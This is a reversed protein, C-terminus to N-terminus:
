SLALRVTDTMELDDPVGATMLDVLLAQRASIEALLHFVARGSPAASSGGHPATSLVTRTQATKNRKTPVSSLPHRAADELLARERPALDLAGALRHLTHSHPVRREGRELNSIEQASLDAKEALEEQTLGAAGRFRRLLVGFPTPDPEAHSEGAAIFTYYRPDGGSQETLPSTERPWLAPIIVRTSPATHALATRSAILDSCERITPRSRRHNVLTVHKRM